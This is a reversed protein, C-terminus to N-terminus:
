AAPTEPVLLVPRPSRQSVARAVSGMLAKALPGRGHRGLVLLDVGHREAVQLIALAVDDSELAEVEVEMAGGESPLLKKLEAQALTRNMRREEPAALHPDPVLVGRTIELVHLLTLQGGEPLLALAYDVARNGPESLDTAVLIRRV